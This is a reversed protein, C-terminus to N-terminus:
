FPLISTWIGHNIMKKYKKKTKRHIGKNKEKEYKAREKKEKIQPRVWVLNGLYCFSFIFILLFPPLCYQCVLYRLLCISQLISLEKRLWWMSSESLGIHLPPHCWTITVPWKPSQLESNMHPLRDSIEGRITCSKTSRVEHHFLVTARMNFM